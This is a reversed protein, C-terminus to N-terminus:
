EDHTFGRTLVASPQEVLGAKHRIEANLLNQAGRGPEDVPLRAHSGGPPVSAIAPRPQRSLAAFVVM